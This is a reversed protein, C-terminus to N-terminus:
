RPGPSRPRVSLQCPKRCEASLTTQDEEVGFHADLRCGSMVALLRRGPQGSHSGPRGCLDWAELPLDWGSTGIGGIVEYLQLM